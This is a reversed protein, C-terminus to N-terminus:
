STATLKGLEFTTVPLIGLVSLYWPDEDAFWQGSFSFAVSGTSNVSVGPSSIQSISPLAVDFPCTSLTGNAQALVSTLTSAALVFYKFMTILLKQNSRPALKCGSGLNQDTRISKEYPCSKQM